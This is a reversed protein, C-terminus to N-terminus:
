GPSRCVGRRDLGARRGRQAPRVRRDCRERCAPRLPLSRRPRGSRGLGGQVRSQSGRHADRSRRDLRGVEPPLRRRLDALRGAALRAGGRRARKRHIADGARKRTMSARDRRPFPNAPRCRIVDPVAEAERERRALMGLAEPLRHAIRAGSVLRLKPTGCSGRSRIDVFEESGLRVLTDVGYTFTDTNIDADNTCADFHAFAHANWATTSPRDRKAVELAQVARPGAPEPRDLREAPYALPSVGFAAATVSSEVPLESVVDRVQSQYIGLDFVLAILLRAQMSTTLVISLGALTAYLCIRVLLPKRPLLAAIAGGAVGPGVLWLGARRSRSRRLRWLRDIGYGAALIVCTKVIGYVLGVHQYESLLPLRYVLAAFVGGLSLWVLSGAALVLGLFFASRERAIAVVLGVLPLLGVYASNDGGRGCPLHVPSGLLFSQAVASLRAANGGYTRFTEVDVKRTFADRGSERPDRPLQARRLLRLRLDGRQSRVLRVV